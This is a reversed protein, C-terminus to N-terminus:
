MTTDKFNYALTKKTTPVEKSMWGKVLDHKIAFLEDIANGYRKPLISWARPVVGYHSKLGEFNDVVDKCNDLHDLENEVRTDISPLVDQCQNTTAINSIVDKTPPHDLTPEMTSNNHFSPVVVNIDNDEEIKTPCVPCPKVIGFGPAPSDLM